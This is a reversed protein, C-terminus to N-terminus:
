FSDVPWNLSKNISHKGKTYPGFKDLHYSRDSSRWGILQSTTKPVPRPSEIHNIILKKEEIPNQVKKPQQHHESRDTFVEGWLEPWKKASLMSKNVHDKWIQDKAVYSRKDNYQDNMQAPKSM